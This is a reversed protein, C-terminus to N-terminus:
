NISFAAMLKKTSRLKEPNPSKNFFSSSFLISKFSINIEATILNFSITWKNNARM